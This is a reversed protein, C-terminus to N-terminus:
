TIWQQDKPSLLLPKWVTQWPARLNRLLMFAPPTRGHPSLLGLIWFVGQRCRRIEAKLTCICRKKPHHRLNDKTCSLSSTWCPVFTGESSWTSTSCLRQIYFAQFGSSEVLAHGFPAPALPKIWAPGHLFIRELPPLPLICSCTKFKKLDIAFRNWSQLGIWVFHHVHTCRVNTIHTSTKNVQCQVHGFITLNWLQFHVDSQLFLCAPYSQFVM